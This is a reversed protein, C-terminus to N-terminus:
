FTAQSISTRTFTYKGVVSEHRNASGGALLRESQFIPQTFKLHILKIAESIVQALFTKQM